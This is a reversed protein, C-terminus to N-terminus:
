DEVHRLVALIEGVAPRIAGHHQGAHWGHQRLRLLPRILEVEVPVAAAPPVLHWCVVLTVDATHRVDGAWWRWWDRRAM